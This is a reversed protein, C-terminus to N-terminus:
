EKWIDQYWLDIHEYLGTADAIEVAIIHWCRGGRFVVDPCTCFDGDVVYEDHIGVVVFFDRYKKIRNEDIAKLAKRGRAGHSAIIENRREPSLLDVSGQTDESVSM